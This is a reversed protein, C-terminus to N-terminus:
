PRNTKVKKHLKSVPVIYVLDKGKQTLIIKMGGLTTQYYGIVEGILKTSVDESEDTFFEFNLGILKEM